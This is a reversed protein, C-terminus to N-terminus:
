DQRRAILCTSLYLQTRRNYIYKPFRPKLTQIAQLIGSNIIKKYLFCSHGVPYQIIISHM